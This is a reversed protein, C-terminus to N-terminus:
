ELHAGGGARQSQQSTWPRRYFGSGRELLEAHTGQEVVRGQEFVVIHDAQPAIAALRHVVALLTRKPASTGDGGGRRNFAPLSLVM